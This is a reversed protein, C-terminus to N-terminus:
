RLIVFSAKAGLFSFLSWNIGSAMMGPNKKFIFSLYFLGNKQVARTKDRKQLTYEM